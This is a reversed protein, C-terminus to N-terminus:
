ATVIGQAGLLEGLQKRAYFLRTKITSRAIGAAKAIDSTTKDHFYVLDIVARHAPSLQDLCKRVTSDTSQRQLELEPGDHDDEILEM